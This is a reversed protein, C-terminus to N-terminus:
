QWASPDWLVARRTCTGLANERHQPGVWSLEPPSLSQLTSLCQEAHAHMGGVQDPRVADAM